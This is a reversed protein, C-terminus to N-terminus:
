RKLTYVSGARTEFAILSSETQRPEVTQGNSSVSVPGASRVKCTSGLLSRIRAEKLKSDQWAIDVEFGGRARLGTVRGSPWAKPLAPLLKIEGAHSQLLMEAIAATGAFNGDLQQNQNSIAFLRGKINRGLVGELLKFAQEGEGLRSWCSAYWFLAGAWNTGGGDSLRRELSVRAAQALKPETERTIQEGPFLAYLHSIHRHNVEGEEYDELWEQLQGHKGVQLPPINDVVKRWESRKDTDMDLIQSAEILHTFVEHILEFDMTAGISLSVPKIGGVFYNEPSQSPVTVLKGFHPSDKRPDKVLYDQYFLAIEKYLPYARHRLFDEDGTYEWHWWFHQALWAAAGTWESWEGETKLCKLASDGTLPIYIGRCDYLNKAAKRAAPLMAEVYEFLPEIAEGLNTVEAPWYNMQLNCDHHLDSAWPPSLEQNWIGQLNAPLGGKRSSSILLYRGYQFFLSVLGPDSQGAKFQELRQDLPLDIRSDGELSLSVRSFLEQHEQGHSEALAAFDAKQSVSDLQSLGFKKPDDTEKDTAISLLILVEDANEVSIRAADKKVPLARGGQNFVTAAAAFRVNEVFEGVFGIRNGDAWPTLKCDPDEVRSLEIKASLSGPPDAALRVVIVNDTRSAFVERSYTVGEHTYTASVIGTSLDLERRYGTVQSHGPFSLFLDGVPQFPDPGENKWEGDFGSGEQAGLLNNAARSAEIIKGEFFMKRIKPLHHAVKPNTRDKLKNERWLRTHNLAIREQPVAGLVMAGIHGNGVPFGGDWETAPQGYWLTTQPASPATREFTASCGYLGVGLIVLSLGTVVIRVSNKM